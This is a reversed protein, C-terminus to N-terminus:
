WAHMVLKISLKGKFTHIGHRSQLWVTREQQKATHPVTDYQQKIYMVFVWRSICTSYLNM